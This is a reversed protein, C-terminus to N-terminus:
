RVKPPQMVKGHYASGFREVCELLRTNAERRAFGEARVGPNKAMVEAYVAEYKERVKSQMSAPLLNLQESVWKVDHDHM